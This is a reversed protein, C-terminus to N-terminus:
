RLNSGQRLSRRGRVLKRFWEGTLTEDDGAADATAIARYADSRHVEEDWHGALAPMRFPPQLTVVTGPAGNSLSIEHSMPLITLNGDTLDVGNVPVLTLALQGENL